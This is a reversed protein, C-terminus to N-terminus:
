PNQFFDGGLLTTNKEFVKDTWGKGSTLRSEKKKTKKKTL